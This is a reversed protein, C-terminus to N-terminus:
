LGWWVWWRFVADTDTESYFSVNGSIVPTGLARCAESMRVGGPPVALVGGPKEPNGFNLCDTVALPRAGSCVLNRAAEAVAIAGGVGPDLYCYRSNCDTTLAIAKGTGRIRIVAADSGPAVATCTRVMHDFQRYAWEKGAINPSRLLKILVDNFDGPMHLRDTDLTKLQKLYAPEKYERSYVPADEALSKAPVRGVVEGNDRITLMGDDTVRGIVSSHLGWKEFIGRVEEEKGKEVILLMREQSESIMVEVPIMGTERKPVLAVDIDM